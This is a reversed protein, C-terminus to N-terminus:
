KRRRQPPVLPTIPDLYGTTELQHLLREAKKRVRYMSPEDAYKAVLKGGPGSLKKTTELAEAVSGREMLRHIGLAELSKLFLKGGRHEGFGQEKELGEIWEALAQKVRAKSHRHNIQVLHFSSVIRGHHDLVHPRRICDLIRERDEDADFRIPIVATRLYATSPLHKPFLVRIYQARTNKPIAFWPMEKIMFHRFGGIVRAPWVPASSFAKAWPLEDVGNTKLEKLTKPTNEKPFLSKIKDSSRAFEYYLCLPLESVAEDNKERDFDWERDDIDIRKVPGREELRQERTTSSTIAM